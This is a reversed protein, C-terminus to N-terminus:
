ATLACAAGPRNRAFAPFEEGLEEKMQKMFEEPLRM